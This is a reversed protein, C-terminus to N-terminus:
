ECTTGLPVHEVFVNAPATLTDVRTIMLSAITDGLADGVPVVVCSESAPQVSCSPGLVRWGEPLTFRVAGGVTGANVHLAMQQDCFWGGCYGSDFSVRVYGTDEVLGHWRAYDDCVLTGVCRDNLEGCAPDCNTGLEGLCLNDEIVCEGERCAVPCSREIETAYGGDSCRMVDTGNAACFTASSDDVCETLRPQCGVVGDSSVGCREDAPCTEESSWVGDVACSVVLRPNVEVCSFLGPTSCEGGLSPVSGGGAESGGSSSDPDGSGGGTPSGESGTGGSALGDGVPDTTAGNSSEPSESTSSGGCGVTSLGFALLAVTRVYQPKNKMM